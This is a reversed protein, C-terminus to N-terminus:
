FEQDCHDWIWIYRSNHQRIPTQYDFEIVSFNVIVGWSIFLSSKLLNGGNSYRHREKQQLLM